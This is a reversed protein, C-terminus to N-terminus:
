VREVRKTGLRSYLPIAHTAGLLGFHKKEACKKTVKRRLENVCFLSRWCCSQLKTGDFKAYNQNLVGRVSRLALLLCKLNVRAYHVASKTCLWVCALSLVFVSHM